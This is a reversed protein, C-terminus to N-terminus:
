QKRRKNSLWRATGHASIGIAMVGLILFSLQDLIVNRTMGIIYAENLAVSNIFGFKQRSEETKYKYLKTIMLSNASHCDECHKVAQDATLIQHM